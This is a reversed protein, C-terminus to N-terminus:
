WHEIRELILRYGVCSGGTGSIVDLNVVLIFVSSHHYLIEPLKVNVAMKRQSKYQLGQVIYGVSRWKWSFSLVYHHVCRFRVKWTWYFLVIARGNLYLAELHGPIFYVRRWFVNFRCCLKANVYSKENFVCHKINCHKVIVYNILLLSIKINYSTVRPIALMKKKWNQRLYPLRVQILRELRTKM